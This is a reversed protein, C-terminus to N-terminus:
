LQQQTEILQQTEIVQVGSRYIAERFPEPVYDTILVDVASLPAYADLGANCFKDHDALLVSKQASELVTQKVNFTSPNLNFLGTKVDIRGSSLFYITPKHRGFYEDTEPGFVAAMEPVYLGPTIHVHIGRRAAPQLVALSNTYVLLGAPLHTVMEAVTSGSDLVIIDAPSVMKAACAAIMRKAHLNQRSRVEFVPGYEADGGMRLNRGAENPTYDLTAAVDRIHAALAMDRIPVGNLVRSVTAPSTEAAVAIDRITVM